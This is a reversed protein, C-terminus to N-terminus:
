ESDEWKDITRLFAEARLAATAHFVWTEVHPPTHIPLINSLIVCYSSLQKPKLAKEMKHCANLDNLYNPPNLYQKGSPSTWGNLPEFEKGTGFLNRKYLPSEDVDLTVGNDFVKTVKRVYGNFKTDAFKQGKIFPDDKTWKKWGCAEAIAIRQKEKNM